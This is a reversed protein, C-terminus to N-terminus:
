GNIVPLSVLKWLPDLEDPFTDPPVEISLLCFPNKELHDKLVASWLGPERLVERTMSVTFAYVDPSDSRSLIEIEEPRNWDLRVFGARAMREAMDQDMAEVNVEALFRLRRDPNHIALGELLAEMNPRKTFCPDLFVIEQLGRNWAREVEKFIRELPFITL